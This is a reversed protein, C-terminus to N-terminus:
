RGQGRAVAADTQQKDGSSMGTTSVTGGNSGVQEAKQTDKQSLTM